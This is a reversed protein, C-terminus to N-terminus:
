KIHEFLWQANRNAPNGGRTIYPSEGSLWMYNDWYVNKIAVQAPDGAVGRLNYEAQYPSDYLKVAGSSARYSLFLPAKALRYYAGKQGLVVIFDLPAAGKRCYVWANQKIGDPASLYCNSATNRIRERTGSDAQRMPLKWGKPPTEWGRQNVWTWNYPMRLSQDFLDSYGDEAKVNFLCIRQTEELERVREAQMEAGTKKGPKVGLGTMCEKMSQGKGSEGDGLVYNEVRNEANAYWSSMEADNSGLWNKALTEAEARAAAERQAPPTGMTRIFAAWLDKTGETAVLAFDKMNSPTYSSWGPYSSADPKWVVDGSKYSLIEANSHTHQESGRACLYSKVQRIQEYNDVPLRVTHESSFSDQFLHVARGFLFYNRDVEVRASAAGGDWVVMATEPAIAANVFYQVFRERSKTAAQVGGQGGVEDYRRMFHDYQVDVPEQAVADFCNHKGAMSNLVNFGGLDVWREGVIADFVAKYTSEYRHDKYSQAKLRRLEAQAGPDSLDTNKALGRTWHKRPDNPDPKVIPDGGMVELAALRTLWEHGMPFINSIGTGASQTFAHTAVPVTALSVAILAALGGTRGLNLSRKAKRESAGTRVCTGNKTM